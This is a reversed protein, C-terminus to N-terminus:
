YSKHDRRDCCYYHEVDLYHGHLLVEVVLDYHEMECYHAMADDYQDDENGEQVDMNDDLVEELM